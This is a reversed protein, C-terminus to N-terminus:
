RPLRAGREIPVSDSLNQLHVGNGRPPRSHSDLKARARGDGSPFDTIKVCTKCSPLAPCRPDTPIYTCDEATGAEVTMSMSVTTGGSSKWAVQVPFSSAETAGGLDVTRGMVCRAFRGKTELEVFTNKPIPSPQTYKFNTKLVTGESLISNGRSSLVFGAGTNRAARM